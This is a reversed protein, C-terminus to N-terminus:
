TGLQMKVFDYPPWPGTAELRVGPQTKGQAEVEALFEKWREEEVLFAASSLAGNSVLGRLPLMAVACRRLARLSESAISEFESDGKTTGGPRHVHVRGAVRNEVFVLAESLASYHLELWRRVAESSKFVVGVQAPLVPGRAGYASIIANHELVAPDDPETAGSERESCIAALDRVVVLTVSPVNLTSVLSDHVTVGFLILAVRDAGDQIRWRSSNGASGELYAAGRSPSLRAQGRSCRGCTGSAPPASVSLHM